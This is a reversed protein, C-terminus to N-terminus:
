FRIGARVGAELGAPLLPSWPHYGLDVGARLWGFDREYFVGGSMPILARAFVGVANVPPSRAVQEPAALPIDIGGLIAGNPSSAVVRHGGDKMRLLALDVSVDPCSAGAGVPSGTEAGPPMGPAPRVTVRVLRLVQKTGPPSAPPRPPHDVKMPDPQRELLVEDFHREEPAEPEPAPPKQTWWLQWGLTLGILAGTVACAAMGRVIWPGDFGDTM